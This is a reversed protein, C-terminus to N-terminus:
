YFLKSGRPLIVSHPFDLLLQVVATHGGKAAEILTTSNDKLKRLPDAECALLFKVVDTHGGACALSLPTHDGNGTMRNVDAGQRLACTTAFSCQGIFAVKDLLISSVVDSAYIRHMSLELGCRDTRCSVYVARGFPHM